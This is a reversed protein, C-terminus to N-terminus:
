IKSWPNPMNIGRPIADFDSEELLFSTNKSKSGTFFHIMLNAFVRYSPLGPMLIELKIPVVNLKNM